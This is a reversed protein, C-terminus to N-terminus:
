PTEEANFESSARAAFPDAAISRAALSALVSDVDLGTFDYGLGTLAELTWKLDVVNERYMTLIRNFEADKNVPLKEGLKPEMVALMDSNIGLQPEYVEMWARLDFWMQRHVDMITNDIRAVNALMPALRLQLAIGSEAVNVDVKGMAADNIGTPEKIGHDYV